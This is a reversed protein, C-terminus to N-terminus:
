IIVHQDSSSSVRSPLFLPMLVESTFAVNAKDLLVSMLEQIFDGYDDVSQFFGITLDSAINVVHITVTKGEDIGFHVNAATQATITGACVKKVFKARPPVLLHFNQAIQDMVEKSSPSQFIPYLAKPLIGVKPFVHGAFLRTLTTTDVDSKEDTNLFVVVENAGAAVAHGIGTNDSYAGDIVGHVVNDALVALTKNSPRVKPIDHVLDDGVRFAVGHPASAIWPTPEADMLLRIVEAFPGSDQFPGGFASSASAVRTVPLMGAYKVLNDRAGDRGIPQSTAHAYPIPGFSASYKLTDHSFAASEPVINLPASADVGSGLRMSFKAPLFWPLSENTGHYKVESTGLFGPYMLANLRGRPMLITHGLLWTKDQAWKMVPSGLRLSNEIGATSNLVVDVFHNWTLGSALFYSMMFITDRNERGFVLRVLIEAVSKMSIVKQSDVGTAARLPQSWRQVFQKKATKPSHAISDTLNLFNKSFALSSAFWSGGSVTSLIGFRNLIGSREIGHHAGTPSAYAAIGALLGTAGALARFGGGEVALAVKNSASELERVQDGHV